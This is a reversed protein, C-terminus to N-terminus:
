FCIYGKISVNIEVNLKFIIFFQKFIPFSYDLCSHTFGFLSMENLSRILIRMILGSLLSTKTPM